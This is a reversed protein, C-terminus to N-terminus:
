EFILQNKKPLYNLDTAEVEIKEKISPSIFKKVDGPDMNIVKCAEIVADIYSLNKEKVQDEIIQSFKTKSMFNDDELDPM